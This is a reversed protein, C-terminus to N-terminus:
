MECVSDPIVGDPLETAIVSQTTYLYATAVSVESQYKRTLVIVCKQFKLTEIAVGSRQRFLPILRPINFNACIDDIRSIRSSVHSVICAQVLM